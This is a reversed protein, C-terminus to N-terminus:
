LQVAACLCLLKQQKKNPCQNKAGVWRIDRLNRGLGSELTQLQQRGALYSAQIKKRKGLDCFRYESATSSPSTGSSWGSRRDKQSAKWLSTSSPRQPRRFKTLISPLSFRLSSLHASVEFPAVQLVNRLNGTDFNGTFRVSREELQFIHTTKGPRM